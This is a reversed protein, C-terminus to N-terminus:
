EETSLYFTLHLNIKEATQQSVGGVISIRLRLWAEKLGIDSVGFPLSLFM